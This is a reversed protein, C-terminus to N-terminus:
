CSCRRSFCPLRGPLSRLAATQQEARLLLTGEKIEGSDAGYAPAALLLAVAGLAVGSVLGLVAALSIFSLVDYGTSSQQHIEQRHIGM